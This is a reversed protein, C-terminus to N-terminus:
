DEMRVPNQQKHLLCPLRRKQRGEPFSTRCHLHVTEDVTLSTSEELIVRQQVELFKFLCPVSRGITTADDKAKSIRSTRSLDAHLFIKRYLKRSFVNTESLSTPPSRCLTFALFNSSMALSERCALIMAGKM